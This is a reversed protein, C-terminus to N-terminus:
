ETFKIFTKGDYRCLGTNRTGFWINGTKDEITCYVSNHCLGERTTFRTFIKGDFHCVGSDESIWIKGARDKLLPGGSIIGAKGTFNIFGGSASDYRCVGNRRTGIYINGDKAEIINRVWVIGNARFSIISKGDYRCVGEDGGTRMRSCFWINGNRDELMCNVSKLHIGEKNIVSDSDLFRTYGVQGQFPSKGNSCYIGDGMTGFWFKGTKDQLISWVTNEGPYVKGYPDITTKSYSNNGTIATIPIITFKNGDYYCAGDATGFWLNGSKDELISYVCNNSLGDKETFQTFLKGDYRYVGEGTTGFWLNGAKDQLGCSVFQYENSGQTKILKPQGVPKKQPENLSDKPLDTKVQGRCSTSFVLSLLLCCLPKQLYRNKM